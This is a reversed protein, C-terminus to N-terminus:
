SKKILEAKWSQLGLCLLSAPILLSFWKLWNIHYHRALHLYWLNFGQYSEKDSFDIATSDDIGFIRWTYPSSGGKLKHQFLIVNGALQTPLSVHEAQDPKMDRIVIYEETKQLVAVIQVYLSCLALIFLVLTKRGKPFHIIPLLILPTIIITLRNGWAWGGNWSVWAAMLCLWSLIIGAFLLAELRNHRFLVFWGPLAALLVPNFPLLGRDFSFIYDLFDRRFNELTFASIGQSYGTELANGFRFYNLMLLCGCAAVIASSFLALSRIRDKKPCAFFLYAALFPFFVLNVIKMIVLGACFLSAKMTLPDKRAILMHLCGLLFFAQTIESFDTVSYKWYWTCCGCLITATLAKGQNKVLRECLRFFFYLGGLAFPVNYFSILFAELLEAPMGTLSAGLKAALVLPVFIVALGIGYKSYIKGDVVVPASELIAEDVPEILLSGEEVIARATRISYETDIIEVHGKASFLYLLTLGLFVLVPPSDRLNKL